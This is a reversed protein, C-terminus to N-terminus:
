DRSPLTIDVDPLTLSSFLILLRREGPVAWVFGLEAGGTLSGGKGNLVLLEGEVWHSDSFGPKAVRGEGKYRALVGLEEPYSSGGDTLKNAKNIKARFSAAGCPVNEDGTIKIATVSDHSEGIEDGWRGRVMRLVEPGHPGFAGIYLGDFIDGTKGSALTPPIRNFRVRNPLPTHLVSEQGLFALLEEASVEDEDDEEDDEDAAADKNADNEDADVVLETLYDDEDRSAFMEQAAEKVADVLKSSSGAGFAHGKPLADTSAMSEWKTALFGEIERDLASSYPKGVLDDEEFDEEVTENVSTLVFTHLGEQEIAAPSRKIDYLMDDEDDEDDEDDDDDVDYDDLFSITEGDSNVIASPPGLGLLTAKIEDKVNEIDTGNSRRWEDILGRNAADVADDFAKLEDDAVSGDGNIFGIGEGDEVTITAPIYNLRVVDRRYGTASEPDQEMAIELVPQGADYDYGKPYAKHLEVIDALDRSSYTSGVLRGHERTVRMIVGLPNNSSTTSSSSSNTRAIDGEDDDDDFIETGAWWGCLGVGADRLTAADNFRQEKIAEVYADCVAGTSDGAKLGDIARKLSAAEHYEESLVADELQCELADLATAATDYEDFKKLTSAWALEAASTTTTAGSPTAGSPTGVGARGEAAASARTLRARLRGSALDSASAFPDVMASAHAGDRAGAGAGDEVGDGSEAGASPEGMVGANVDPPTAKRVELADGAGPSGGDNANAREIRKDANWGHGSSAANDNVAGTRACPRSHRHALPARARSVERRRRAGQPAHAREVAGRSACSACAVRSMTLFLYTASSASSPERPDAGHARSRTRIRGLAAHNGRTKRPFSSLPPSM